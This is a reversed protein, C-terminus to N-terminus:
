DGETLNGIMNNFLTGLNRVGYFTNNNGLVECRDVSADEYHIIIQNSIPDHEIKFVNAHITNKKGIRKDVEIITMKPGWM